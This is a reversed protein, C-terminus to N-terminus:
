VHEHEAAQELEAETPVGLARKFFLLSAVFVVFWFFVVTLLLYIPTFDM